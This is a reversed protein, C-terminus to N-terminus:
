NKPIYAKPTNKSILDVIIQRAKEELYTFEIGCGMPFDASEVTRVWRVVGDGALASGSDDFVIKFSVNENVNPFQKKGFAVFMGGRGLSVVKARIADSLDQFQLEIAFEVEVLGSSRTWREGPPLLLRAITDELLKGQFPKSLLAEAGKHYAEETTLDAFGTVLLVIPVSINNQKARDLLEVGDGGPMRIDSVVVDVAQTKILEFAENGNCAFFIQYGKRKLLYGVTSRFDPDDDVLLIRTEEPPKAVM